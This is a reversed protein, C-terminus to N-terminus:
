WKAKAKKGIHKKTLNLFCPCGKLEKHPKSSTILSRRKLVRLHHTITARSIKMRRVLDALTQEGRKELEDLIKGANGGIFENGCKPCKCNM